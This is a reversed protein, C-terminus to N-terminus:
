KWCCYQEYRWCGELCQDQHNRIKEQEDPAWKLGKAALYKPSHRGPCAERDKGLWHAGFRDMAELLRHQQLCSPLVNKWCTRSRGHHAWSPQEASKSPIWKLMQCKEWEVMVQQWPPTTLSEACCKPFAALVPWLCDTGWGNSRGWFTGQTSGWFWVKEGVGPDLAHDQEELFVWSVALIVARNPPYHLQPIFVERKNVSRGGNPAWKLFKLSDQYWLWLDPKRSLLSIKAWHHFAHLLGCKMCAKMLLLPFPYSPNWHSSFELLRTTQARYLM